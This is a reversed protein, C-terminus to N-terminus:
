NQKVTTDKKQQELETTVVHDKLKAKQELNVLHGMKYSIMHRLNLDPKCGFTECSLKCFIQLFTFDM